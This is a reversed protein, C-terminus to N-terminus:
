EQRRIADFITQRLSKGILHASLQKQEQELRICNEVVDLASENGAMKYFVASLRFLKTREDFEMPDTNIAEQMFHKGAENHAAAKDVFKSILHELNSDEWYSLMLKVMRYHRKILEFFQGWQMGKKCRLLVYYMLDTDSSQNAIELAEDLLDFAILAKVQRMLIPELTLLKRALKPRRCIMAQQAAPVLSAKPYTLKTTEGSTSSTTTGSSFSKRDASSRGPRVISSLVREVKSADSGGSSRYRSSLVSEKTPSGVSADGYSGGSTAIVKGHDRIYLSGGKNGGGSTNGPLKQKIINFLEDDTIHQFSNKIKECSWHEAITDGSIQLHSCMQLAIGHRNWLAVRAVVTEPELHAYQACTLSMGIDSNRLTHIVRLDRCLDNMDELIDHQDDPDALFRAGYAASEVLSLQLTIDREFKAAEICSEVAEDLVDMTKLDKISAECIPDRDNLAESLM